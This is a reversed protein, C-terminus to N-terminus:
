SSQEDACAYIENWLGRVMRTLAFADELPEGIAAWYEVQDRHIDPRLRIVGALANWASAGVNEDQQLLDNAVDLALQMLVRREPDGYIPNAYAHLYRYFSIEDRFEQPLEYAWDQVYSDGEPLGLDSCIRRISAIEDEIM